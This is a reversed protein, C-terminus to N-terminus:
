GGRTFPTSDLLELDASLAPAAIEAALKTRAPIGLSYRHFDM